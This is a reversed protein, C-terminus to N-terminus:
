PLFFPWINLFWRITSPNADNNKKNWVATPASLEATLTPMTGSAPAVCTEM